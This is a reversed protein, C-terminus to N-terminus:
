QEDLPWTPRGIVFQRESANQMEKAKQLAVDRAKRRPTTDDKRESADSGANNLYMKTLKILELTRKGIVIASSRSLQTNFKTCNSAHFCSPCGGDYEWEIRCFSCEQLLVIAAELINEKPDFFSNWLRAVSGSGGAREDFLMVQTPEFASHDCDVDGRVLGQAFLPAVALLAHSRSSSFYSFLHSFLLLFESRATDYKCLM